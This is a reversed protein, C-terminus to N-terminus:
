CFSVFRVFCRSTFRCFTKSCFTVFAVFINVALHNGERTNMKTGKTVKTVKQEFIKQQNVEEGAM